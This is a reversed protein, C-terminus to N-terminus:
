PRWFTHFIPPALRNQVWLFTPPAIILAGISLQFFTPPAIAGGTGADRCYEKFIQGQASSQGSIQPERITRRGDSLIIKGGPTESRYAGIWFDEEIDTATIVNELDNKDAASVLRGGLMTGCKVAAEPATVSEESVYYCAGSNLTRFFPIFLLCFHFLM